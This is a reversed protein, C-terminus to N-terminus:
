LAPPRKVFRIGRLRGGGLLVATVHGDRDRVFNAEGMFWKDSSFSDKTKPTLHIVGHHAQTAILKGDKISFTYQAELEESWYVGPYAHLDTETKPPDTTRVGENVAGPQTIKVKMGSSAAAVFEIEAELPEVYFHSPSLPKMEMPPQIPGAALLKGGEAVVVLTQGIQPLPYTGAFTALVASDVTVYTRKTPPPATDPSMQSALYVAAVKNAERAPSFSALNSVVAV